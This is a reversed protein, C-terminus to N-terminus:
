LMREILRDLKDSIKDLMSIKTTMQSELVAVKTKLENLERQCNESPKSKTTIKLYGLISAVVTTIGTVSLHVIQVADSM